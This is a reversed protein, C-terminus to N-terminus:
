WHLNLFISSELSISPEFIKVQLQGTAAYAKWDLKRLSDGSFYDRKGLVRSPDEFLPQKHRINGMPFQSPIAVKTLPVIKPFVSIFESKMSRRQPNIVGLLDGSILNMPGISYYGRKRCDLYYEFKVTKKPSLTTVQQYPGSSFLEIPLSERIQLWVVPLWGNNTIQLSVKVKEGLFAHKDFTRQVSVAQLARKGWWRGLILAGIFLYLISLVFDEGLFAGVLILSFLFLFSYNGM